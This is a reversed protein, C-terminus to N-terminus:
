HKIQQFLMFLAQKAAQTQIRHRLGALQLRHVEASKGPLALGIYILGSPKGEVPEEGAVGTIGIGYDSNLRDRVNEALRRAVPESVTGHEKMVADPVGLWDAKSQRSYCVIGGPFVASSGPVSTIMHALLGGTCSEALAVRRDLDALRKVVAEALSTDGTGYLHRGVIKRIEKEPREILSEAEQVTRARATLRLTVEGEKALSAITPNHQKRIIHAIETELQSEGIGFFRLVRSHVVTEEPLLEKLYSLVHKSFMPKLERPPGPLLIYHRGHAKVALGPATGNENHFVTGDVFVYAQKRNNDTMKRGRKNFYAELRSLSPRHLELPVGTVDSVTEKTLDDETPGLGGTFILIDARAEAQRIIKELRKPNDGVTAHFHVNIGIGALQQSLFQANTNVIQGLLLETGVAIIEAQM